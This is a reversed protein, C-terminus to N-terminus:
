HVRPYGGRSHNPLPVQLSVGTHKHFGAEFKWNRKQLDIAQRTVENYRTTCTQAHALVSSSLLVGAALALAGAKRSRHM